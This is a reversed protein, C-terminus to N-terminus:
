RSTLCLVVRRCAHTLPLFHLDFGDAIDRVKAHDHVAVLARDIEDRGGIEIQEANVLPHAIELEDAVDIAEIAPMGLHNHRGPLGVRFKFQNLVDVIIQELVLIHHVLNLAAAALGHGGEQHEILLRFRDALVDAKLHPERFGLEALAAVVLHFGHADAVLGLDGRNGVREAWGLGKLLQHGGGLLRPDASIKHHLRCEAIGAVRCKENGVLLFIGAVGLLQGGFAFHLDHLADLAPAGGHFGAGRTRSRQHPRQEGFHHAALFQRGVLAAPAAIFNEGASKLSRM